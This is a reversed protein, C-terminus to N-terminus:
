LVEILLSTRDIWQRFLYSSRKIDEFEICYQEVIAMDIDEMLGEYFITFLDMDIGIDDDDFRMELADYIHQSYDIYPDISLVTQILDTLSFKAFFSYLAKRRMHREIVLRMDVALLTAKKTHTM